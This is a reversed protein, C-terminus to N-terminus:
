MLTPGAFGVDGLTDNDNNKSADFGSSNTESAISENSALKSNKKESAIKEEVPLLVIGDENLLEEMNKLKDSDLDLISFKPSSSLDLKAFGGLDNIMRYYQRFHLNNAKLIAIAEQALRARVKLINQALKLVNITRVTGVYPSYKLHLHM